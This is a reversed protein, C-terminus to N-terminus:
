ARGARWVLQRHLPHGPPIRPHDFDLDPARTMGIRAMVGQSALNDRATFAAVRGFRALGHALWAGAAEAAYGQRWHARALRWGIEWGGDLGPSVERMRALGVMGLFAGDARREVAAFGLGEERWRAAIRALLADTEKASLPAPFHRMVAPDANLAAFADRDGPM